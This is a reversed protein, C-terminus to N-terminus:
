DCDSDSYMFVRKFPRKTHSLTVAYEQSNNEATNFTVQCNQFNYVNRPSLTPKNQSTVLPQQHVHGAPLLQQFTKSQAGDILNSLIRQEQEGGSDYADLGQESKHGTIYKIECKPVGCSKL